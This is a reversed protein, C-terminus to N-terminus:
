VPLLLLLVCTRIYVCCMSRNVKATAVNLNCQYCYSYCVHVFTYVVCSDTLKLLSLVITVDTAIAIVCMYMVNQKLPTQMKVATFSM